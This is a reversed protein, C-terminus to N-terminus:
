GGKEGQRGNIWAKMRQGHEGYEGWKGEEDGPLAHKWGENMNATSVGRERRAELCHTSEDKKM